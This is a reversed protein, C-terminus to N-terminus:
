AVPLESMIHNSTGGRSPSPSCAHQLGGAVAPRPLMGAVDGAGRGAAPPGGDAPTAAVRQLGVPEGSRGRPGARGAAFAHAVLAEARAASAGMRARLSSACAPACVCACARSWVLARSRGRARCARAGPRRRLEGPATGTAPPGAGASGAMRLDRRGGGVQRRHTLHPPPAAAPSDTWSRWGPGPGLRREQARARVRCVRAPPPRASTPLLLLPTPLQTQDRACRM